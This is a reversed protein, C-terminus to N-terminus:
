QRVKCKHRLGMLLKRKSSEIWRKVEDEQLGLTKALTSPAVGAFHQELVGRSNEDLSEMATEFHQWVKQLAESEVSAQSLDAVDKKWQDDRQNM